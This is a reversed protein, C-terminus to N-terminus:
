CIPWNDPCNYFQRPMCCAPSLDGFYHLRKEFREPGIGFISAVKKVEEDTFGYEEVLMGVYFTAICRQFGVGNLSSETFMLSARFEMLEVQKLKSLPNNSFESSQVFLDFENLTRVFPTKICRKIAVWEEDTNASASVYGRDGFELSGLPLSRFENM